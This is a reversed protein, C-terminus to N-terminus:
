YPPYQGPEGECDWLWNETAQPIVDGNANLFEVRWTMISSGTHCWVTWLTDHGDHPHSASANLTPTVRVNQAGAPWAYLWCRIYDTCFPDAACITTDNTVDQASSPMWYALSVIAVLRFLKLRM